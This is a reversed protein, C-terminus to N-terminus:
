WALAGLALTDYSLAPRSPMVTPELLLRIPLPLAPTMLPLPRRMTEPAELMMMWFMWM